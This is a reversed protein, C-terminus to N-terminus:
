GKKAPAKAPAAPKKKAEAVPRKAKALSVKKEPIKLEELGEEPFRWKRPRPKKVAERVILYGEEHGPVAGRVAMLHHEPDVKEVFLNQMTSRENGMQGSMRMGKVVRKPFSSAGISGAVRGFMSGHSKGGGKFHHRKVV